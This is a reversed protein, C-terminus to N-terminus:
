KYTALTALLASSDIYGPFPASPIPINPALPPLTQANSNKRKAARTKTAAKVESKDKKQKANESKVHAEFDKGHATKYSARSVTLEVHDDRVAVAHKLV